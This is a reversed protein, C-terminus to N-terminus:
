IIQLIGELSKVNPYGELETGNRNVYIGQTSLQYKENINNAITVDEKKDGIFYAKQITKPNMAKIVEIAGQTKTPERPHITVMQEFYKTLNFYDLKTQTYSPISKSLVSMRVGKDRLEDLVKYTEPFIPADGDKLAQEWSKRKDFAQDFEEKGINYNEALAYWDKGIEEPNIPKGLMKFANVVDIKLKNKSDILTNDLDFIAAKQKNTYEM